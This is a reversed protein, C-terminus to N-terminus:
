CLEIAVHNSLFILLTNSLYMQSTDPLTNGSIVPMYTLLRIPLSVKQTYGLFGSAIM